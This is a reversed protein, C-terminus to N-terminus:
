ANRMERELIKGITRAHWVAGRPPPHGELTLRQGIQGWGLGESRLARIRQVTFASVPSRAMPPPLYGPELRRRAYSERQRQGNLERELQAFSAAVGAMARGFPTTMDVPPDLMVIAWGEKSAKDMLGAFDGLNRSLRDLRAVVLADAEGAALRALLSRLGPRGKMDKASASDMVVDVLDWGRKAIEGFVAQRQTTLSGGKAQETSSVRVYGLARM